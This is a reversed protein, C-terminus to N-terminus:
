HRLEESGLQLDPNDLAALGAQARRMLAQCSHCDCKVFDAAVATLLTVAVQMLDSPATPTATCVVIPGTDPIIAVLASSGTRAAAHLQAIAHELAQEATMNQM